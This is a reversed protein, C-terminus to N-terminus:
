DFRNSKKLNEEATLIQLNWPVHLGCVDPHHLPIIHDVHYKIGTLNELDKATNYIKEIKKFYNGITANAKTARRKAKHANILGKHKNKYRKRAAKYTEINRLRSINKQKQLCKNCIYDYRKKRSLRWNIATLLEIKCIRCLNM